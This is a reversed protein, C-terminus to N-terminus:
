TGSAEKKEPALKVAGVTIAGIVAIKGLSKVGKLIKKGNGTRVGDFIEGSNDIMTKANTVINGVVQEGADLLDQKGDHIDASNRKLGGAVLQTAGSVASGAIQGTLITSDVISDGLEELFKSKAVRGVVSVTGGIVGGVVAGGIIAAKKIKKTDLVGRNKHM